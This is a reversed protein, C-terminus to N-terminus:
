KKKYCFGRKVITVDESISTISGNAIFNSPTINSPTLTQVTSEGAFSGLGTGVKISSIYSEQETFAGVSEVIFDGTSEGGSVSTMDGTFTGQSIGNLFVEAEVSNWGSTIDYQVRWTQEVAGEGYSVIDPFALVWPLSLLYFGTSSLAFGAVGIAGGGLAECYGIICAGMKPESLIDLKVNRIKVEITLLNPPPSLTRKKTVSAVLDVAGAGIHYGGDIEFYSPLSQPFLDSWPTLSDCADNLLDPTISM